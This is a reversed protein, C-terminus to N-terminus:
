TQSVCSVFLSGGSILLRPAAREGGGGGWELVDHGVDRTVVASVFWIM